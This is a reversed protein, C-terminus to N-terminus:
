TDELIQASLAGAGELYISSIGSRVADVVQDKRHVIHRSLEKAALDPDRAVLADLIQRHESKSDKIRSGMRVWRIFRIRDNIGNLTRLLEENGSLRAIEAHFKEDLAVAQAITIGKVHLGTAETEQAFSDLEDDKARLAALRVAAIEVVNRMEYLNFMDQPELPRCYFGTGPRFEILQEAVLRNLAERVPTRSVGLERALSGENIREGPRIGFGAAKDKIQDYIDSVRTEQTAQPM